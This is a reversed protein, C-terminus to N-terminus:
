SGVRVEKFIDMYFNIQKAKADASLESPLMRLVIEVETLGLGSPCVTLFIILDNFLKEKAQWM